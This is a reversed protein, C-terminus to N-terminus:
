DREVRLIRNEFARQHWRDEAVLAVPHQAALSFNSLKEFRTCPTARNVEDAPVPRVGIETGAGRQDPLIRSLCGFAILDFDDLDHLSGVLQDLMVANIPAPFAALQDGGSQRLRSRFRGRTM